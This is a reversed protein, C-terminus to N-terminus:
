YMRAAFHLPTWKKLHKNYDARAEVDAKKEVLLKAVEVHGNEALFHLAYDTIAFSRVCPINAGVHELYEIM